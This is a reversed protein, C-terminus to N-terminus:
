AERQVTTDVHRYGLDLAQRVTEYCEDYSADHQTGVGLMPLGRITPASLDGVAREVDDVGTDAPITARADDAASETSRTDTSGGRGIAAEEGSGGDDLRRWLLYGAVLAAALPVATRLRRGGRVRQTVRRDHTRTEQRHM